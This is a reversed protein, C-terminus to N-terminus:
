HGGGCGGDGWAAWMDDSIRGTDKEYNLERKTKTEGLNSLNLTPPITTHHLLFSTDKIPTKHICFLRRSM